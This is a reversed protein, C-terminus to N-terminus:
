GHIHWWFLLSLASAAVTPLASRDALSFPSGPLKRRGKRNKRRERSRRRGWSRRTKGMNRRGEEEERRRKRRRREKGGGEPVGPEQATGGRLTSLLWLL